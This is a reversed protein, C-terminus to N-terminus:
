QNEGINTRRSGSTIAREETDDGIITVPNM